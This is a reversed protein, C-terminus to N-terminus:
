KRRSWNLAPDLASGEMSDIAMEALRPAMLTGKSGLGNLCFANSHVDHPGMLPHRDYSAPRVAWRQEVVVHQGSLFTGTTMSEWRRMLEDRFRNTKEDSTEIPENMAFRDYTAGVLFRQDGVPVAWADHHIVQECRVDQSQVLLIDGRAPHLPLDSFYRNERAAIGQCFVIRKGALQLESIKIPYGSHSSEIEISNDCDLNCQHFANLNEFHRKTESIYAVTDLRAAPGFRCLGFPANLGFWDPGSFLEAHISNPEADHGLGIWKGKFLEREAESRFVRLAPEVHWFSAGLAKEVQRYFLNAAPYFESWRWSAAARSGTVPTVLGAAVRSSSQADLRDIIAVSWGRWHAQWAM